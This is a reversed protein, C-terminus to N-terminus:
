ARGECVKDKDARAMVGRFNRVTDPAYFKLTGVWLAWDSRTLSLAMVMRCECVGPARMALLSARHRRQKEQAAKQAAIAGIAIEGFPGPLQRLAESYLEAATAAPSVSAMTERAMALEGNLCAPLHDRRAVRESIPGATIFALGAYVAVGAIVERGFLETVSDLM